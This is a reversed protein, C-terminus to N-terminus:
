LLHVQHKAYRLAHANALSKRSDAPKAHKNRLYHSRIINEASWLMAAITDVTNKEFLNAAEEWQLTGEIKQSKENVVEDAALLGLMNDAMHKMTLTEFTVIKSKIASQGAASWPERIPARRASPPLCCLIDLQKRLFSWPGFSTNEYM